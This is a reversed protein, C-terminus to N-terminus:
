VLDPSQDKLTSHEWPYHIQNECALTIDCYDEVDLFERLTKRINELCNWCIRLMEVTEMETNNRLQFLILM